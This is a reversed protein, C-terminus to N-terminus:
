FCCDYRRLPRVEISRFSRQYPRVQTQCDQVVAGCVSSRVTGGRSPSELVMDSAMSRRDISRRVVQVCARAPRSFTSNPLRVLRHGPPCLRGDFSQFTQSQGCDLAFQCPDHSAAYGQRDQIPQCASMLFLLSIPLALGKIWCIAM